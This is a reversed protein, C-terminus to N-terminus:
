DCLGCQREPTHSLFASSLSRAFNPDGIGSEHPALMNFKNLYLSQGISSEDHSAGSSSAMYAVALNSAVGLLHAVYPVQTGKRLSVHVQRAYDVAQTFRPTLQLPNEM